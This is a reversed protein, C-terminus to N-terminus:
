YIHNQRPSLLREHIREQMKIKNQFIQQLELLSDVFASDKTQGRQDFIKQHRLILIPYSGENAGIKAFAAIKKRSSRSSNAIYNEASQVLGEEAKEDLLISLFYLVASHETRNNNFNFKCGYNNILIMIDEYINDLIQNVEHRTM